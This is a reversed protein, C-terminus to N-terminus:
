ISQTSVWPLGICAKQPPIALVADPSKPVPGVISAVTLTQKSVGPHETTAPGAPPTAEIIGSKTEVNNPEAVEIIMAELIIKGTEEM